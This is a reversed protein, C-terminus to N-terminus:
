ILTNEKFQHCFKILDAHDSPLYLANEIIYEVSERDPIAWIFTIKEDKPEYYYLALDYDPIPRTQRAYFISRIVNSLLRERKTQVCIYYPKETGFIDEHRKACQMLEDLYDEQMKRQTEIVSQEQPNKLLEQSLAGVTKREESM